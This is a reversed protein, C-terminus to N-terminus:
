ASPRKGRGGAGQHCRGGRRAYRAFQIAPFLQRREASVRQQRSDIGPSRAATGRITM